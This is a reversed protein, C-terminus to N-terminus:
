SHAQLPQGKEPGDNPAPMRKLTFLASIASVLNLALDVATKRILTPVMAADKCGIKYADPQFCKDRTFVLASQPCCSRPLVIARLQEVPTWRYWNSPGTWGCCSLGTQFRDWFRTQWNSKPGMWEYHSMAALM